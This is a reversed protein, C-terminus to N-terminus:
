SSRDINILALGTEEDLKRNLHAPSEHIIVELTPHVKGGMLHGGHATGDEKGVVVHAHVKHDNKYLSIDGALILVEVQEKIQIKKYDKVQFSFFGLTVESFAGIATFQAASLQKEKAFSKLCDTVDEGSNMIVAYVKPENNNILKWKMTQNKIAKLM